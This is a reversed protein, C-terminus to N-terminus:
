TKDRLFNSLTSMAVTINMKRLFFLIQQLTYGTERLKFIEKRYKELQQTSLRPKNIVMFTTIDNAQEIKKQFRYKLTNVHQVSVNFRKAIEKTNKREIYIARIIDQSKETLRTKKIILDVSNKDLSM